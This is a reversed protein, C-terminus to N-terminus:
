NFKKYLFIKQTLGMRSDLREDIKTGYRNMESAVELIQLPREDHFLWLNFNEMLSRVVRYRFTPTPFSILVMGGPRCHEFHRKIMVATDKRSFHEILGISFVLDASASGKPQQTLIDEVNCELQTDNSSQERFSVENFEEKDILIIRAHPFFKRIYTYLASNGGGLEIIKKVEASEAWVTQVFFLFFIKPVCGPQVNQIVTRNKYYAKWDTTKGVEGM